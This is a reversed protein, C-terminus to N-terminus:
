YGVKQYMAKVIRDELKQMYAEEEASREHDHGCVHLFGHAILHLAEALPPLEFRKAQEYVKERCILVDGLDIVPTLFARDESGPRLDEYVPFSLVDTSKDKGRYERNLSRIKGAGCLTVGLEIRSIDTRKLALDGAKTGYCYKEFVDLCKELDRKLHALGPDKVRGTDNYRVFFSRQAITVECEFNSSAEHSCITRLM